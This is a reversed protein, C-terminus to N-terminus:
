ASSIHLIVKLMQKELYCFITNLPHMWGSYFYVSLQPIIAYKGVYEYNLLFEKHYIM